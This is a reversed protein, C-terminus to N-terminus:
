GFFACYADEDVVDILKALDASPSAPTYAHWKLDARMWYLTWLGTTRVYRLKAFPNHMRKTEDRWDPRDEYVVVSQGEIRYDIRLEHAFQPLTRRRCFGGVIKEIRKLELEAFAM